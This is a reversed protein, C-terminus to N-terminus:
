DGPQRGDEGRVPGAAAAAAPDAAAAGALFARLAAAPLEKGTFSRVQEAAQCLFMEFGSVAVAGAAAVERLLRTRHPRYVMDLVVTGKAPVWGPVLREDVDRDIGGVPTAQVVVAPQLEDLVAESLSGVRVGHAAAFARVPELTRGLVTVVFGLQLLAFAGARAAGGAGLVAAHRGEGAVVGAAALAGTVGAVDTNHGVLRGDRDVVVTNVVGVASAAESLRDCVAALRPKHPATVSLGGFPGLRLAALLAEPRSTEFPLYVGDFGLRRFARNHLWPGLSSLAPNGILGCWRTAPGLSQVRYLGQLLAVPPQWPVTASDPEVSGYVFPAGMAAALVRTPWATRGMAFAVTPQREQDTARLLELVPLADALDHATVVLKAIWGPQAHLEQQRKALEKPVGTFSHFSRVRLSLRTQGAPPSWTEWHELDIGKAGAALAHTLLERREGLSGRFQGGDEPTRCAVLVPLRVRALVPGLDEGRPWQDLRLELWDAGQMAAVDGLRVVQKRSRAFISAVIRAM